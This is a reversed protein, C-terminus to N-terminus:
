APKAAFGMWGKSGPVLSLTGCVCFLYKSIARNIETADSAAQPPLSAASGAEGGDVSPGAVVEGVEVNAGVSAGVAAEVGAGVADGCDWDRFWSILTAGSKVSGLALPGSTM